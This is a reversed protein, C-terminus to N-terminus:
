YTMGWGWVTCGRRDFKKIVEKFQKDYNAEGYTPWIDFLICDWGEDFNKLYQYADGEILELNFHRRLLPTGFFQLIDPDVEIQTVKTVNPHGCVRDTLWGMGLGAILVHGEVFSLPERLTYVELPSLSMWVVGQKALIPVLVPGDFVVTGKDGEENFVQLESRRTVTKGLPFGFFSFKPAQHYPPFNRLYFQYDGVQQECIHEHIDASFFKPNFCQPQCVYCVQKVWENYSNADIVLEECECECECCACDDGIDYQCYQCREKSQEDRIEDITLGVPSGCVCGYQHYECVFPFQIDESWKISDM